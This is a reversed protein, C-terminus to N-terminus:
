KNAHANLSGNNHPFLSYQSGIVKSLRNSSYGSTFVVIHLNDCARYEVYELNFPLTCNEFNDKYIVLNENSSGDMFITLSKKLM